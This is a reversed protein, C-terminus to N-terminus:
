LKRLQIIVLKLLLKRRAGRSNYNLPLLYDSSEWNFISTNLVNSEEPQESIDKLNFITERKELSYHSSYWSSPKSGNKLQNLSISESETAIIKWNGVFFKDLIFKQFCLNSNLLVCHNGKEIYLLIYHLQCDLTSNKIKINNLNVLLVNRVKEFGILIGALNISISSISVWTYTLSHIM